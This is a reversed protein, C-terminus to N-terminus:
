NQKCECQKSPETKGVSAVSDDDSNTEHENANNNDSKMETGLENKKEIVHVRM